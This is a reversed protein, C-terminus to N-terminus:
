TRAESAACRLSWCPVLDHKEYIFRSSANSNYSHRSYAKWPLTSVVIAKLENISSAIVRLLEAILIGRWSCRILFLSVSIGHYQVTTPNHQLHYSCTSTPSPWSGLQWCRPRRYDGRTTALFSPCTEIVHVTGYINVYKIHAHSHHVRHSSAPLFM